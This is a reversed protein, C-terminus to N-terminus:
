DSKGMKSKSKSVILKNKSGKGFKYGYSMSMTPSQMYKHNIEYPIQFPPTYSAFSASIFCNLYFYLDFLSTKPRLNFLYNM